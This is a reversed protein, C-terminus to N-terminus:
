SSLCTVGALVLLQASLHWVSFGSLSQPQQQGTSPSASLLTQDPFASFFPPLEQSGYYRPVKLPFYVWSCQHWMASNHRDSYSDHVAALPFSTRESTGPCELDQHKENNGEREHHWWDRSPTPRWGLAAKHSHFLLTLGAMNIRRQKNGLFNESYTICTDPLGTHTPQPQASLCLHRIPHEMGRIGEQVTPGATVSPGLPTCLPERGAWPAVKRGEEKEWPTLLTCLWCGSRLPAWYLGATCLAIKWKDNPM